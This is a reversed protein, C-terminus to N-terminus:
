LPAVMDIMHILPLLFSARGFPAPYIRIQSLFQKVPRPRAPYVGCREPASAIAETRKKVFV